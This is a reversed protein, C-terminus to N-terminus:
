LRSVDFEPDFPNVFTVGDLTAGVNFDESLVFPVQNLRAAAWIQADYYALRFDRVGRVAEQIIAPTLPLVVMARSYVEVQRYVEDIAALSRGRRLTANAFEALVQASIVALRAPALYRLLESARAMRQPDEEDTAYILVNSDLLYTM